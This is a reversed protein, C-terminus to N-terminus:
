GKRETGSHDPVKCRQGQDGQSGHYCSKIADDLKKQCVGCHTTKKAEKLEQIARHVYEMTEPRDMVTAIKRPAENGEPVINFKAKGIKRHFEEYMRDNDNEGSGVFADAVKGSLKAIIVSTIATAIAVGIADVAAGPGQTVM